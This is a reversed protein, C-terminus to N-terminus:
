FKRKKKVAHSKTELERKLQERKRNAREESTERPPSPSKSNVGSRGRLSKSSPSTRTVNHLDEGVPNSNSPTTSQMALNKPGSEGATLAKGKGGIKGLKMKTKPPAVTTSPPDVESERTPPLIKKDPEAERADSSATDDMTGLDHDTPANPVGSTDGMNKVSLGETSSTSPELGISPSIAQRSNKASGLNSAPPKSTAPQPDSESEDTTSDDLATMTERIPRKPSRM